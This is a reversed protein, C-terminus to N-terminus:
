ENEVSEVYEETLASPVTGDSPAPTPEPTTTAPPVTPEPTTVPPVTPEPTAPTVTPATVSPTPTITPTLTLTPTPTPTPTLIHETCTMHPVTEPTFLETYRNPCTELALCGSAPCIAVRTLGETTQFNTYEMGEHIRNMIKRWLNKHYSRYTDAKPLVENNDYGAWVSCTFYPTYGAFWLDRYDSTTGTKGAVPMNNLRCATGTGGTVVDQMANTLLSATTPKLVQTTEPTNELVINGYQDTIKTYFMPKIYEGGNAIAAYSATLELNTVGNWIGGLAMPQFPDHEPDLTTFGFKLLYDYGLAPTIETLCKVAVINVSRRIADRVTTPGGFSGSANKVPRGNSYNYPEDVYVTGLSVGEADIAPAYTSVIKFTSGPQRTTTTARNLTLSATKEGRGGVIAKVYGTYQDMITISSQPELTYTCREALVEAGYQLVYEKYAAIHADADEISDFLLDFNPDEIEQFYNRLMEQSHNETSGDLKTITLAWDIGYEPNSPFNEPNLYEEDCIQQIRQDQTTYIRLGGSYLAQYAQNESYGKKDQLDTVVQKTLEDIFYSYVKNETEEITNAHAAIREYVDDSMAAQKEAETIYGQEEMHRLVENRREANKEPFRIPNYATPNKTIGAIVACEELTLDSVNKGFYKQAAAQVGYTGAGLNITNLYNELITDKDVQKELELALYQEQFKRKFRELQTEENVWNTFVNNKLLQQTITSAGETFHFKNKVGVTFARIIGKIDIGNHDYFREDEVAIVAHQLDEPIKELSVSTRNATPATLKQIENGESDYVFTAYGTPVININTIDPADAILGKIIGFALCGGLLVLAIISIFFVRIVTSSAKKKVKKSSSSLEKRTNSVNRKNYNM